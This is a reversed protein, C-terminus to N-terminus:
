VKVAKDVHEDSVSRLSCRMINTINYYKMPTQLVRYYTTTCANKKHRSISSQLQTSMLLIKMHKRKMIVYNDSTSKYKYNRDQGHYHYEMKQFCFIKFEM